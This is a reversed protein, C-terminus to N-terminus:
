KRALRALFPGFGQDGLWFRVLNAVGTASRAANAPMAVDHIGTGGGEVVDLRVNGAADRVKKGQWQRLWEPDAIGGGAVAPEDQDYIVLRYITNLDAQLAVFSEIASHFGMGYAPLIVLQLRHGRHALYIPRLDPRRSIGAFDDAEEIFTYLNPDAAAAEADFNAPDLGRAFDGLRLDVIRMELRDFDAEELADALGPTAALIREIELRREMEKSVLQAPRLLAATVSVALASGVAVLFATVFIRIASEAPLARWAQWWARLDISTM